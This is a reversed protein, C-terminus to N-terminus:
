RDTTYVSEGADKDYVMVSVDGDLDSWYSDAVAVADAFEACSAVFGNPAVIKYM